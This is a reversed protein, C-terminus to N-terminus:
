GDIQENFILNLYTKRGQLYLDDLNENM